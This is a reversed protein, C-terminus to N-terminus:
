SRHAMSRSFHCTNHGTNTIGVCQNLLFDRDCAVTDRFGERGKVRGGDGGTGCEDTCCLAPQDCSTCVKKKTFRRKVGVVFLKVTSPM